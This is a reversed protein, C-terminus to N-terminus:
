DFLSPMRLSTVAMEVRRQLPTILAGSAAVRRVSLAHAHEPMQVGDSDAPMLELRAVAEIGADLLVDVQVGGGYSNSVRSNRVRRLGPRDQSM